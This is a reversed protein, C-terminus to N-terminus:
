KSQKQGTSPAEKKPIESLKRITEASLAANFIALEDIRGQWYAPINPSVEKGSDDTKCGIALSQMPPKPIIGNSPASAVEVGNRYLRITKGDAVFAVHQWIGVPLPQTAGERAQAWQGDHQTMQVALDGDQGCLGFHFQGTINPEPHDSGGWNAAIMAYFPRTEAMVWVSVTLQDNQAKPYDPVIVYDGVEPGRFYIADGIHGPVWPQGFENALRLEGTCAGPASDFVHLRDQRTKPHEMRYYAAPHLSLVLESYAMSELVRKSPPLTRVYGAPQERSRRIVAPEGAAKEVRGSENEGLIVAQDSPGVGEANLQMKVSGRFVHSKTAGSKDCEVGFETGLDTIIASPTRVFFM